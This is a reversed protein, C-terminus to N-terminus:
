AAGRKPGNLRLLRRVKYEARVVGELPSRRLGKVDVCTLRGSGSLTHLGDAYDQLLGDPEIRRVETARFEGPTLIDLRLLRVRRGYAEECDQVPLYLHGDREFAAGAPRCDALGSRVPNDGHQIWPGRLRDAWAVHLERMARDNSGALAYFMWWLGGSQVVTADVAPLDLLREVPEWRDPFQVCRYLTLAGSKYGEPLMYLEGDAEILSPYSLHFHEALALGRSILANDADYQIFHIEGRRVRYDFAEVFITVVGNREIGFPDALYSFPTADQPLWVIEAPDLGAPDLVHSLPRRIFGSRWLDYM